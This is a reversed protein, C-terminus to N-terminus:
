VNIKVARTWREKVRVYTHVNWHYLCVNHLGDRLWIAFKTIERFTLVYGIEYKESMLKLMIIFFIKFSIM